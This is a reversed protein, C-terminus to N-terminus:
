CHLLSCDQLISFLGSLDCQEAFVEDQTEEDWGVLTSLVYIFGM